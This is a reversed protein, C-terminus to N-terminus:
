QDFFFFFYPQHVLVKREFYILVYYLNSVTIYMENLFMEGRGGGLFFVGPIHFWLPTELFNASLNIYMVTCHVVHQREYALHFNKQIFHPKTFLSCLFKCLVCHIKLNYFGYLWLSGAVENATAITCSYVACMSVPIFKIGLRWSM